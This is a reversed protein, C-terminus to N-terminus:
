FKLNAALSIAEEDILSAEVNLDFITGMSVTAGLAIGVYTRNKLNFNDSGNPPFLYPSLNKLKGRVNSYKVAFYPVLIEIKHSVGMGVQWERYNINSHKNYSVGNIAEWKSKMNAWQIAADAGLSTNGWSIFIARAGVGWTFDEATQYERRKQDSDPRHTFYVNAVGMTGYFEARDAFDLAILGQQMVLQFEDVRGHCGGHTQLKRDFVFDGQYGIKLAMWNDKSLVIGQDIIEAESINGFYLAQVQSFSSVFICLALLIKKM